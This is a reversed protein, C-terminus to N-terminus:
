ANKLHCIATLDIAAAGYFVWAVQKWKNSEPVRQEEFSLPRGFAEGFARSSDIMIGQVAGTTTAKAAALPHVIVRIGGISGIERPLAVLGVKSYDVAKTLNPDLLVDPELTPAIILFDPKRKAAKMTAAARLIDEFDIVSPVDLTRTCGASANKLVDYCVQELKENLAAGMEALLRGKLDDSTFDISQQTLTDYDGYALIQISKTTLSGLATETLSNGESIPGQATRSPFVRVQVTDGNGKGIDVSLAGALAGLVRDAHVAMFVTQAYVDAPIWDATQTTSTNSFAVPTRGARGAISEGVALTMPDYNPAGAKALRELHRRQLPSASAPINFDM